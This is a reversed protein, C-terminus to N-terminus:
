QLKELIERLSEREYTFSDFLPGRVNDVGHERIYKLLYAYEEEPECNHIVKDVYLPKFQTLWPDKTTKNSFIHRLTSYIDYTSGVYFKNNVLQLAYICKM